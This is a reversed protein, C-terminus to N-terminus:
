PRRPRYLRDIVLPQGVIGSIVLIWGFIYSNTISTIEPLVIAVFGTIVLIIGIIISNIRFQNILYEEEFYKKM